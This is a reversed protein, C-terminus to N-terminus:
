RLAVNNTKKFGTSNPLIKKFIKKKMLTLYYTSMSHLYNM